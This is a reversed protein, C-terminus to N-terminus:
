KQGDDLCFAGFSRWVKSAAKREDQSLHMSKQNWAHAYILIKPYTKSRSFSLGFLVKVKRKRRGTWVTYKYHVRLRGTLRNDYWHIVFSFVNKSCLRRIKMIVRVIIVPWVPSWESRYTIGNKISTVCNALICLNHMITRVRIHRTNLWIETLIWIGRKMVSDRWKTKKQHSHLLWNLHSPPLSHKTPSICVLM